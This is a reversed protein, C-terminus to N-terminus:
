LDDERIVWIRGTKTGPLQGTRIMMRIEEPTVDLREAVERTSLLADEISPAIMETGDLWQYNDKKVIWITGVKKAPLKGEHILHRVKVSSIDLIAAMDATTFFEANVMLHAPNAKQLHDMLDIQQVEDEKQWADWYTNIRRTFEKPSDFYIREGLPRALAELRLRDRDILSILYLLEQEGAFGKPNNLITQRLVALDHDDGLYESLTHLEDALNSLVNPWLDELIELHYWLYKVRKRWEHFIESDPKEYADAMARRGRFYVRRLGGRFVLFDSRQIPLQSISFKAENMIEVIDPILQHDKLELSLTEDYIEVLQQRVGDFFGLPLQEQYKDILRDLTRIMVWSDRAASLKQSADRFRINEGKYLEEGIEDRVLRIAARVRKCSKRANHVGKDRGSPPDTLELIIQDVREIILRIIGDALNENAELRYPM